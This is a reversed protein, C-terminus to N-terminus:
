THMAALMGLSGQTWFALILEGWWPMWHQKADTIASHMPKCNDKAGLDQCHPWMNLISPWLYPRHAMMMIKLMNNLESMMGMKWRSDITDVPASTTLGCSVSQASSLLLLLLLAYKAAINNCVLITCVKTCYCQMSPNSCVKRCYYQMCVRNCCPM